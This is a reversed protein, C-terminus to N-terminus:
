EDVIQFTGGNWKGDVITLNTTQDLGGRVNIGTGPTAQRKVKVKFGNTIKATSIFLVQGNAYQGFTNQLASGASRNNYQTQDLLTPITTGNASAEFDTGLLSKGLIHYQLLGLIQNDTLTQTLPQGGNAATYRAIADNNPVLVTVGTVGSLLQTSIEPRNQLIARFSSADQVPALATALDQAKVLSLLASSIVTSFRMKM